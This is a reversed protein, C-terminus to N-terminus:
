VTCFMICVETEIGASIPIKDIQLQCGHPKAEQRIWRLAPSKMKSTFSKYMFLRGCRKIKLLKMTSPSVVKEPSLSKCFM